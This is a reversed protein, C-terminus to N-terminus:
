HQHLARRRGVAYSGDSLSDYRLLPPVPLLHKWCPAHTGCFTGCLNFTGMVGAEGVDPFVFYGHFSSSAQYFWRAAYKHEVSTGCFDSTKMTSDNVQRSNLDKMYESWRERKSLTPFYMTGCYRRHRAVPMQVFTHVSTPPLVLSRSRGTPVTYNKGQISM